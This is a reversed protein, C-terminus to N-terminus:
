SFFSTSQVASLQSAIPISQVEAHAAPRVVAVAAVVVAVDVDTGAVVVDETFPSTRISATFVDVLDEDAAADVVADEVVAAEAAEPIVISAGHHVEMTARELEKVSNPATVFGMMSSLGSSKTPFTPLGSPELMIKTEEVVPKSKVLVKMLVEPSLIVTTMQFLAELGSTFPPVTSLYWPGETAGKYAGRTKESAGPEWCITAKAFLVWFPHASAVVAREADLAKPIVHPSPFKTDVPEPYSTDAM